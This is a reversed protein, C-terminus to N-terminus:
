GAAAQDFEFRSGSRGSEPVSVTAIDALVLVTADRDSVAEFVARGLEVTREGDLHLTADLPRGAVPAVDAGEVILLTVRDPGRLGCVTGGYIAPPGPPQLPTGPFRWSVSRVVDFM